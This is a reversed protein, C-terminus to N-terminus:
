PKIKLESNGDWMWQMLEQEYDYFLFGGGCDEHAISIGHKKCLETLEFLFKQIRQENDENYEEAWANRIFENM